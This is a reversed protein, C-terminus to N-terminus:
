RRCASARAGEKRFESALARAEEPSLVAVYDLYGPSPVARFREDKMLQGPPWWFVSDMSWVPDGHDRPIGQVKVSFAM